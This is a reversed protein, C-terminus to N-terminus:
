GKKKDVRPVSYGDDVLAMALAEKEESSLQAIDIQIPQMAQYAQYCYYGGLATLNVVITFALHGMLWLAINGLNRAQEM